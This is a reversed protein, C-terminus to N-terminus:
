RDPPDAFRILIPEGRELVQAAFQYPSVLGEQSEWVKRSIVGGPTLWPRLMRLADNGRIREVLEKPDSLGLERAGDALTLKKLLFPKAFASVPEPFDLISKGADPGVLLYPGCARNMGRAFLDEDTQMLRELASRPPYLRRVKDLDDGGAASGDRVADVSDRRMGRNHCGICSLGNVILTNRGATEDRDRVVDAPGEPIALGATNVLMYGQLGSPLHFIIEGGDHKFARAAFSRGAVDAPGLPFRALEQRGTDSKFDYSLWYAGHAAEHREILRNQNSVGSKTFGARALKDRRFNAAVDVKLLKELDRVNDPLGLLTEYLPRGDKAPRERYPKQGEFTPGPQSANAVFWDARVLPLDTATDRYVPRATRALEDAGSHKLGYPYRHLIRGWADTLDWDLDRLDFGLLTGGALVRPRVPNLKWHLSNLLKAVAAQLLRLDADTADDRNAVTALSFYRQYKAHDRHVTTLDNAIAVFLDRETVFRRRDVATAANPAAAPNTFPGAGARVWAAVAAVDDAGPRAKVREDDLPPMPKRKASMRLLLRSQDPQGPLVKKEDLLKQRDLVFDFGGENEGDKGHCPYCHTKLVAFARAEPDVPQAPAAATTLLLVAPALRYRM